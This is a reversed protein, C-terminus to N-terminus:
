HGYGDLGLRATEDLANKTLRGRLFATGHNLAL